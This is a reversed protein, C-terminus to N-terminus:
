INDQIYMLPFTDQLAFIKAWQEPYIIAELSALTAALNEARGIGVLTMDIDPNFLSMQTAVDFISIGMSKCLERVQHVIARQRKTVNNTGDGFDLLNKLRLMGYSFVSANVFAAGYKKCVEILRTAAKSHINYNLYSLSSQLVGCAVGNEHANLSRTGMGIYGIMGESRRDQLFPIIRAECHGFHDTDHIQFVDIYDVNLRTYSEYFNRKFIEFDWNPCPSKTAIYLSERLVQRIFEGVIIESEAYHRSTDFYRFGAEYCALLLDVERAPTAEGKGIHACGVGLPIERNMYRLKHQKIKDKIQMIKDFEKRYNWFHFPTSKIFFLSIGQM